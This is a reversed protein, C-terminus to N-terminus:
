YKWFSKRVNYEDYPTASGYGSFTGPIWSVKDNAGWVTINQCGRYKSPLDLVWKYMLEQEKLQVDTPPIPVRIDLESIRWKIGMKSFISISDEIVTLDWGLGLHMQIGVGDVLGNNILKIVNATETYSTFIGNYWLRADPRIERACKYMLPIDGEFTQGSSTWGENVIDWDIIRPYRPMVEKIWDCPAPPMSVWWILTHYHLIKRYQYAWLALRDMGNFGHEQIYLYKGEVEPVILKFNELIHNEYVSNDLYGSYACTGIIRPKKFIMPLYNYFSM